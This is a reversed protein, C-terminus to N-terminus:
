VTGAAKEAEKKALIEKRKNIHFAKREEYAKMWEDFHADCLVTIETRINKRYTGEGGCERCIKSEKALRLEEEQKAKREAMEAKGKAEREAFDAILAQKDKECLTRTWGRITTPAGTEGCTECTVYSREEAEEILRYFKENPEDALDPSPSIYARLGGFKEKIQQIELNPDLAYLDAVLTNVLDDWGNSYEKGWEPLNVTTMNVSYESRNM